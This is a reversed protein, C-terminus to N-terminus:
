RNQRMQPLGVLYTMVTLNILTNSVHMDNALTPLAPYYISASMPSILGAFSAALMTLIKAKESFVCYPSENQSDSKITNLNTNTNRDGRTKELDEKPPTSISDPNTGTTNSEIPSGMDSM